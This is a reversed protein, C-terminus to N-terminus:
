RAREFADAVRLLTQEDFHRSILMLGVPLGDIEGCPVSIAPHGSVDFPCTNHLMGFTKGTYQSLSLKLDTPLLTVQIPTTPMMLVDAEQLAVDYAGRLTRRLNQAKAYYHSNYHDAMYQGLLVVIKVSLPFDNGRARRARGYFDVMGLPYHGQWNWGTSEGRIMQATSGESAIVNWLHVGDRHMPISIETTTAGLKELVQVARKVTDDVVSESLGPWGFGEGVVGIRLGHVDGTLAQTYEGTQVNVQRPDLGDPGALVELVLAADAVTKTMPGTHDLSNEIAFIGTYPVLGHTPKLGVIGCWAAPIRISGAQDGGLAIDVAESAVLAASGSSSGGTTREPAIPNRVVVGHSTFSSGSFGFGEGVAKGTIEAGADLLRTVVTADENAICGTLVASGNELPMGALSITDKLAVTRGTLKGTTAGKISCRWAWGGYPNEAETPAWGADRPYNVPLKPASLEDLRTYSALSGDSFERIEALEEDALEFGFSEAIRRLQTISPRTVSM